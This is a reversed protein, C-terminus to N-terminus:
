FMQDICLVGLVIDQTPGTSQEGISVVCGTTSQSIIASHTMSMVADFTNNGNSIAFVFVFYSSVTMANAFTITFTTGNGNTGTANAGLVTTFDGTISSVTTAGIDGAAFTGYRRETVTNTLWTSGTWFFEQVSHKRHLVISGKGNINGAASVTLNNSDFSSNADFVRVKAGIDVPTLVPLTLTFVGGSTNAYVDSNAVATTSGTVAATEPDVDSVNNWNSTTFTGASDGDGIKRWLRNSHYVLDGTYYTTSAIWAPASFDLSTWSAPTFSVASDGSINKSWLRRHWYVVAGTYYPTNQVWTSVDVNLVTWNGTSFTGSSGASNRKWLKGLYYVMAGTSYAQSAVWAPAVERYNADGHMILDQQATTPQITLGSTGDSTSTAGVMAVVNSSTTVFSWQGAGDTQILQGSTGESTPIKHSIGKAMLTMDGGSSGVTTTGTGTLAVDAFNSFTVNKSDGNVQRNSTVTGDVTYFSNIFDTYEYGSATSNVSVNKNAQGRFTNPFQDRFTKLDLLTYICVIMLGFGFTFILPFYNM